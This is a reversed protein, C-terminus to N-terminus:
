RAVHALLPDLVGTRVNVHDDIEGHTLGSGWPTNNVNVDVDAGPVSNGRLFLDARQYYNVHYASGQPRRTESNIDIDSSNRIGDVYATYDIAFTGISTRNADLRQCLDHTSGGGHSYGFIAVAAVGRGQVARVVEDYVPGAGSSSVDDEDYMHVDYGMGYLARAVQFMGHNSSPPDSPNQNEGGLAIVVSGFPSFRAEDAGVVEGSIRRAELRLTTDAGGLSEVWFTSTPGSFDVIVDDNDDLMAFTKQAGAWVRVVANSRSLVYRYGAPAPAPDVALTIEILDNENVVNSETWDGLGNGNDDDGNIRIGVGPTV